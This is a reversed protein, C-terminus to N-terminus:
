RERRWTCFDKKLTGDRYLNWVTGDALLLDRRHDTGGRVQVHVVRSGLREGYQADLAQTKRKGLMQRM